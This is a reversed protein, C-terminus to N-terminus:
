QGAKRINVLNTSPPQLNPLFVNGDPGYILKDRRIRTGNSTVDTDSGFVNSDTTATQYDLLNDSHVYGSKGPLMGHTQRAVHRKDFLQALTNVDDADLAARGRKALENAAQLAKPTGTAKLLEIYKPITADVAKNWEAVRAHDPVSAGKEDTTRFRNEAASQWAKESAETATRDRETQEAGFQRDQRGWEHGLKAAEFQRASRANAATLLHGERQVEHGERGLAGQIDQGRLTAGISAANTMRATAAATDTAHRREALDGAIQAARLSRMGGRGSMARMPAEAAREADARQRLAAGLTQNGDIGTIGPPPAETGNEMMSPAPGISRLNALQRMYGEFGPTQLTTVTGRSPAAAPMAPQPQDRRPPLASAPPTGAPSAPALVPNVRAPRLVPNGPPQDTNTRDILQDGFQGRLMASYRSSVPRDGPVFVDAVKAAASGVDMGAELLGKGLSRRAGAFDGNRLASFTGGASSDTTPDDIKFDGMASLMDAGAGARLMPGAVRGAREAFEGATRLTPALRQGLQYARSQSKAPMEIDFPQRAGTGPPITWNPANRVSVATGAGPAQPPVQPPITWNPRTSPVVARSGSLEIVELGPIGAM